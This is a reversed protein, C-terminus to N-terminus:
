SKIKHEDASICEMLFYLCIKFGNVFERHSIGSLAAHYDEEMRRGYKKNKKFLLM